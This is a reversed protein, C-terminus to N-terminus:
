NDQLCRVSLGGISEDNGYVTAGDVYIRLIYAYGSDYKTSTWFGTYRGLGGFEEYSSGYFGAPLASFGFKDAGNEWSGARLNLSREDQSSGVAALLSKFEADSPLHWGAPCAKKADDWTYLRGYKECNEPKDGYCENTVIQYNLNETMWTQSGIKITKYTQGDRSDKLEGYVFEVKNDVCKSIEVNYEEGGCRDYVKENQCFQKDSLYLSSGCIGYIVNEVCKEYRVSYEEGGCKDYVFGDVCFKEKGITDCIAVIMNQRCFERKVDYEEGGCKDYVQDAVCFLGDALKEGNCLPILKGNEEVYKLPNYVMLGNEDKYLSPFELDSKAKNYVKEKYCFQNDDLEKGGCLEEDSVCRLYNEFSKKNYGWDDDLPAGFVNMAYACEHTEACDYPKENEFATWYRYNDPYDEDGRTGNYRDDTWENTGNFKYLNCFDSGDPGHRDKLYSRCEENDLFVLRRAEMKESGGMIDISDSIGDIWPQSFLKKVDNKSPVHFGDPCIGKHKSKILLAAFSTNAAIGFDMVDAWHYLLGNKCGSDNSSCKSDATKYALNEAMWTQAGIKVTKYVKGDRSDEITGKEVKISPPTVVSSSDDDKAGSPNDDGCAALGFLLAIAAFGFYKKKM